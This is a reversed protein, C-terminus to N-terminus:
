CPMVATIPCPFTCIASCACFEPDTCVYDTPCDNTLACSAVTPYVGARISDTESDMLNVITKKNLALKKSLKKTKM